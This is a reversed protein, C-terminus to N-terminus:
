APKGRILSGSSFRACDTPNKQKLSGRSEFGAFVPRLASTRRPSTTRGGSGDELRKRRATVSRDSGPPAAPGIDGHSIITGSRGGGEGGWTARARGAGGTVMLAFHVTEQLREKALSDDQEVASGAGHELLAAEVLRVVAALSEPRVGPGKAAIVVDQTEGPGVHHRLDVVGVELGPGVDHEGVGEGGGRDRLRIVLRRVERGLDVLCPGADRASAGVGPGGRVTGPERGPHEPGGVASRGDRGLHLVRAGAVRAEVLKAAGVLLRRAGEDRAPDIEKEDLRHEVGQVRLGRDEGEFRGEFREPPGERDNDRARDGVGGAAGQRPLGDLREPVRDPVCPREGRPEVAGEPRHLESRPDLLERPHGVDRQAHVRVGPKRVLEAAVVKARVLEGALDAVPRAAAEDVDGPPAAAGGGVVDPREHLRHRSDGGPHGGFTGPDGPEGTELGEVDGRIREEHVDAFAGVDGAGGAECAEHAVAVELGRKADRPALHVVAGLRDVDVHVLPQEVGLRAHHAEEVQDGRLRVDRPHRHHDVGRAPLHDLRPELAHLALPDDVRDAELVAGPLKELLGAAGMTVARRHHDHGEVLVALRVGDFPADRDALARVPQEHPVRTEQGLVDDEIGVDERDRRAHLLVAGIGGVEDLRGAEDLLPQGAGEDRSAKGVDRERKAAVVPHAFRHVGREEVVRDLRPEVHGDDVGALEGDEVVHLGLEPLPDLVHDEVAVGVRALPEERDRFAVRAAPARLAVLRLRLPAGPRDLLPDLVGEDGPDRVM